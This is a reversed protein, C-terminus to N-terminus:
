RGYGSTLMKELCLHIYFINIAHCAYSDVGSGNSKGKSFHDLELEM